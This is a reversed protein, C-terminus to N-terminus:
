APKDLPPFLSFNEESGAVNSTFASNLFILFNKEGSVVENLAGRSHKERAESHSEVDRPKLLTCLRSLCVSWTVSSHTYSYCSDIAGCRNRRLIRHVIEFTLRSQDRNVPHPWAHRVRILAPRLALIFSTSHFENSDWTTPATSVSCSLNEIRRTEVCSNLHQREDYRYAQLGIDVVTQLGVTAKM